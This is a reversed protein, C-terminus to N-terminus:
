ITNRGHNLKGIAQLGVQNRQGAIEHGIRASRNLRDRFHEACKLRPQADDRYEAVVVEADSCVDHLPRQAALPDFHQPIAVHHQAVPAFRQGYDAHIIIAVTGIQRSRQVAKWGPRGGDQQRMIRSHHLAGRAATDTQHEGAVRM